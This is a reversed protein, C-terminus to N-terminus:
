VEVFVKGGAVSHWQSPPKLWGKEVLEARLQVHQLIDGVVRERTLEIGEEDLRNATRWKWHNMQVKPAELRLMAGLAEQSM